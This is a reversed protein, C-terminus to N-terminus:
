KVDEIIKELFAGTLLYYILPLPIKRKPRHMNIREWHGELARKTIKTAETNLASEIDINEDSDPRGSFHAGDFVPHLIYSDEKRNKVCFIGYDVDIYWHDKERKTRM